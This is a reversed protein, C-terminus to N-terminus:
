LSIGGGTGMLIASLFFNVLIASSRSFILNKASNTPIDFSTAVISFVIATGGFMLCLIVVCNLLEVEPYMGLLIPLLYEFM